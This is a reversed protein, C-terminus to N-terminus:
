KRGGSKPQAKKGAAVKAAQAPAAAPKTTSKAAKQRAKIEKLAAERAKQRVEPKQDRKSKIQANRGVTAPPPPLTISLPVPFCPTLLLPCVIQEVRLPSCLPTGWGRACGRGPHFCDLVGM